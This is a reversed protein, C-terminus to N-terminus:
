EVAESNFAPGQGNAQFAADTNDIVNAPFVSNGVVSGIFNLEQGAEIMVNGPLSFVLAMNEMVMSRGQYIAKYASPLQKQVDGLKLVRTRESDGLVGNVPSKEKSPNWMSICDDQHCTILLEEEVRDGKAVIQKTIVRCNARCLKPTMHGLHHANSHSSTIGKASVSFAAEYGLIKTKLSFLETLSNPDSVTSLSASFVGHENYYNGNENAPDILIQWDPFGKISLHHNALHLGINPIALGAHMNNVVASDDAYPLRIHVSHVVMQPSSILFDPNNAHIVKKHSTLKNVSKCFEKFNPIIDPLPYVMIRQENLQEIQEKSLTGLFRITNTQPDMIFGGDKLQELNLTVPTPFESKEEDNEPDSDGSYIFPMIKKTFM